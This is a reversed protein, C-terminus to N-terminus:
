GRGQETALESEAADRDEPVAWRLTLEVHPAEGGAAYCKRAQIACIAGDDDIIGSAQLSDAAAKCCNDLDPRSMHPLRPMERRKWVLRKPRQFVFTVDMMLPGTARVGPPHEEEWQRAMLHAAATEWQVSRGARYARGNAFRPRAQAAPQGPIVVRWVRLLEIPVNV